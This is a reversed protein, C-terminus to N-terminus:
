FLANQALSTGPTGDSGNMLRVLRCRELSVLLLPVIVKPGTEHSVLIVGDSQGKAESLFDLFSTM